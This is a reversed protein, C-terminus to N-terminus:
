ENWEGFIALSVTLIGLVTIARGLGYSLGIGISMILMGSIYWLAAYKSM